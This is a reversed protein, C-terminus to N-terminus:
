GGTTVASPIQPLVGDHATSKVGYQGTSAGSLLLALALRGAESDIDDVTALDHKAFADVASVGPRTLEVGVAPVGQSALGAYFGSLFRATAGSQPKVSRGVVVGDIPPADSGSREEVLDPSLAQWLPSNGGTVLESGLRRGLDGIRRQTALAALGPRAALARRLAAVDIPLKLARVRLPPGTGADALTQEVQSRVRGDIPGAFVLGVNSGTLRGAMLAPYARQVFAEAARQSRTLDVGRRTASDLRSKLDAIRENFLSRESDSVFGKGSIGVGVVIGIILALFVAALSAVHYRLDFM